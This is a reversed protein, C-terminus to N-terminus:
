MTKRRSLQLHLHYCIPSSSSCSPSHLSLLLSSSQVSVCFRNAFPLSFPSYEPCLSGIVAFPVLRLVDAATQVVLRRDRRSLPQGSRWSAFLVRRTAGFNRSFQVSGHKLHIWTEHLTLKVKDWASPKSAPDSTTAFSRTAQLSVLSTRSLNLSTDKTVTGFKKLAYARSLRGSRLPLKATFRQM